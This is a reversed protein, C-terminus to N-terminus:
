GPSSRLPFFTVIMMRPLRTAIRSSLTTLEEPVASPMSEVAGERMVPALQVVQRIIGLHEHRRMGFVSTPNTTATSTGKRTVGQEPRCLQHPRARTPSRTCHIDRPQSWRLILSLERAPQPGGGKRARKLALQGQPPM